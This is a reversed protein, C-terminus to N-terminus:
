RCTADAKTIMPTARQIIQRFQRCCCSASCPGVIVIMMMVVAFADIGTVAHYAQIHELSPTGAASGSTRLFRARGCRSLRDPSSRFRVVLRYGGTM